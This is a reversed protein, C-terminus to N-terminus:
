VSGAKQRAVVFIDIADPSGKFFVQEVFEFDIRWNAKELTSATTLIQNSTAHSCLRKALNVPHGIVTYDSRRDSGVNGLLAEGANIGIGIGLDKMCPSRRCFEDILEAFCDRMQVAGNLACEVYSQLPTSTRFVAMVEDGMFKSM